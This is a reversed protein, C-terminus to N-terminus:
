VEVEEIVEDIKIEKVDKVDVIEESKVEEALKKVQELDFDKSPRVILARLIEDTIRIAREIKSIVEAEANFYTLIYTANRVHNIEFALAREQWIDIYEIKADFKTLVAKIVGFASDKDERVLTQPMVFMGEYLRNETAM